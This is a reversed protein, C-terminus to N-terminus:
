YRGWLFWPKLLENLGRGVIFDFKMTM